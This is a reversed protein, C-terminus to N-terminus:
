RPAVVIVVTMIYMLRDITLITIVIILFYILIQRIQLTNKKRPSRMVNLFARVETQPHLTDETNPLKHTKKKM